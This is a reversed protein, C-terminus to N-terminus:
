FILNSQLCFSNSTLGCHMTLIHILWHVIVHLNEYNESSLWIKMMYSNMSDFIETQILVQRKITAMCDYHQYITAKIFFLSTSAKYSPKTMSYIEEAIVFHKQCNQRTWSQPTLVKMCATKLGHRGGKSLKFPRALRCRSGSLNYSTM